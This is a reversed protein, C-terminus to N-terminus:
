KRLPLFDWFKKALKEQRIWFAALFTVKRRRVYCRRRRKGSGIRYATKESRTRSSGGAGGCEGGKEGVFWCGPGSLFSFALFGCRRGVSPFIRRGTWNQFAIKGVLVGGNGVCKIHVSRRLHEAVPQFWKRDTGPHARVTFELKEGRVISCACTKDIRLKKMLAVSSSSSSSFVYHRDIDIATHINSHLITLFDPQPPNHQLPAHKRRVRHFQKM